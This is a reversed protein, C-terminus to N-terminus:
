TFPRRLMRSATTISTLGLVLFWTSRSYCGLCILPIRTVSGPRPVLSLSPFIDYPPISQVSFRRTARRARISFCLSLSPSPPAVDSLTLSPSPALRQPLPTAQGSLACTASEALSAGRSAALSACLIDPPRGASPPWVQWMQQSAARKGSHVLALLPRGALGFNASLLWGLNASTWIHAAYLARLSSTPTKQCLFKCRQRQPQCLISGSMHGM